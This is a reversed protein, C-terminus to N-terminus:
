VRARMVAQQFGGAKNARQLLTLTQHHCARLFNGKMFFANVYCGQLFQSCWQRLITVALVQQIQQFLGM